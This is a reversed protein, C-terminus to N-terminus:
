KGASSRNHTEPLLYGRSKYRELQGMVRPGKDTAQQKYATMEPQRDIDNGVVLCHFSRTSIYLPRIPGPVNLPAPLAMLSSQHLNTVGGYTRTSLSLPSPKTQEEKGGMNTPVKGRKERQKKVEQLSPPLIHM